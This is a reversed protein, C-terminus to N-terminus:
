KDEEYQEAKARCKRENDAWLKRWESTELLKGTKVWAPDKRNRKNGCDIFADWRDKEFKAMATRTVWLARKLRRNEAELRDFAESVAITNKFGRKAFGCGDWFFDHMQCKDKLEAKESKYKAVLEMLETISEIKDSVDEALTQNEKELEAIREKLHVVGDLVDCAQEMMGHTNLHHLEIAM